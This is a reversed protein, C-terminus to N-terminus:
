IRFNCNEKELERNEIKSIRINSYGKLNYGLKNLDRQIKILNLRYQYTRDFKIRPNTRRILYDKSILQYIYKLLSSESLNIMIEERLEKISKYIWGHELDYISM